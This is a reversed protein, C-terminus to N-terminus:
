PSESLSKSPSASSAVAVFSCTVVHVSNLMGSVIELTGIAIKLIKNMIELAVIM